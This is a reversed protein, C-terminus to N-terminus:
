HSWTPESTRGLDGVIRTERNGLTDLMYLGSSRAFLLYRSDPGWVPNQGNEAIVRASGTGLELVAVQFSGGSGRVMVATGKRVTIVPSAPNQGFLTTAAFLWWGSVQILNM